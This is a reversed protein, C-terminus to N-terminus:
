ELVAKTYCTEFAKWCKLLLIAIISARDCLLIVRVVYENLRLQPTSARQLLTPVTHTMKAALKNALNPALGDSNQVVVAPSTDIKSANLQQGSLYSIGYVGTYCPRRPLPFSYRLQRGHPPTGTYRLQNSRKKRGSQGVISIWEGIIHKM